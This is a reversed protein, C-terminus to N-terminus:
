IDKADNRGWDPFEGFQSDRNVILSELTIEGNMIKRAHGACPIFGTFQGDICGADYRMKGAKGIGILNILQPPQDCFSKICCDPYGLAKGVPANVQHWKRKWSSALWWGAGFMAAATLIISLPKVKKNGKLNLICDKTSMETM